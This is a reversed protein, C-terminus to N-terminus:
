KEAASMEQRATSMTKMYARIFSPRFIKRDFAGRDEALLELFRKRIVFYTNLQVYFPIWRYPIKIPGLSFIKQSFEEELTIPDIYEILEQVGDKISARYGDLLALQHLLSEDIQNKASALRKQVEKESIETNFLHKKLENASLSHLSDKLQVMTTGVFETRFKLAGKVLSSVADMFLDLVQGVRVMTSADQSLPMLPSSIEPANKEGSRAALEGSIAKEAEVVEIGEFAEKLARQLAASDKNPVLPDYKKHIQQLLTVISQAEKRFPNEFVRTTDEDETSAAIHTYQIIYEGIKVMDGNQLTYPQTPSIKQENLFTGNRSDEDFLCYQEGERKIKAHRRSILRKTDDLMLSNTSDRGITIIDQDFQREYNEESNSQKGVKLMFPM